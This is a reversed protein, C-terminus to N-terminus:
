IDQSSNLDAHLILSISMKGIGTAIKLSRISHKLSRIQKVASNTTNRPNNCAKQWFNFAQFIPKLTIAFGKSSNRATKVKNETLLSSLLTEWLVHVSNLRYDMIPQRVRFDLISLEM